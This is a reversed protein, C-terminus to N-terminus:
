REGSVTAKPIQFLFSQLRKGLTAIEADDTDVGWLIKGTTTQILLRMCASEDSGGDWESDVGTITASAIVNRWIPLGLFFFRSQLVDRDLTICQCRLLMVPIVGFFLLTFFAGSFSSKLTALDPQSVLRVVCVAVVALVMLGATIGFGVSKSKAWVCLRDPSQIYELPKLIVPDSKM